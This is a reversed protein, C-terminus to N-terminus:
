PETVQTVRREPLDARWLEVLITLASRAAVIDQPSPQHDGFRVRQYLALLESIPAASRRSRYLIRATFESTTEAPDRRLGAMATAGELALWAQIVANGPDRSTSFMSIAAALGTELVHANAEIAVEAEVGIQVVTRTRTPKRRREFWRLAAWLLALLALVAIGWAVWRVWNDEGRIESLAGIMEHPKLEIMRLTRKSPGPVWRLGVSSAPHQLSVSIVLAVSLVICATLTRRSRRPGEDLNGSPKATALHM